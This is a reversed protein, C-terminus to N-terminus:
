YSVTTIMPPVSPRLVAVVYYPRVGIGRFTHWLHMMTSLLLGADGCHLLHAFLSNCDHLSVATASHRLWLLIMPEGLMHRQQQTLWFAWTKSARDIQLAVVM